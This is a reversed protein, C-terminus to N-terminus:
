HMKIIKFAKHCKVGLEMRGQLYINISNVHRIALCSSGAKVTDNKLKGQKPLDLSISIVWFGLPM